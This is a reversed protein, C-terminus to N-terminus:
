LLCFLATHFWILYDTGIEYLMRLLWLYKWMQKSIHRVTITVYAFCKIDNCPLVAKLSNARRFQHLLLENVFIDFANVFVKDTLLKISNRRFVLRCWDGYQLTLTATEDDKRHLHASITTNLMLPSLDLKQAFMNRKKCHRQHGLWCFFKTLITSLKKLDSNNLELSNIEIAIRERTKSRVVKSESLTRIM